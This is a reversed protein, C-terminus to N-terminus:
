KAYSKADRDKTLKRYYGVLPGVEKLLRLLLYVLFVVMFINLAM